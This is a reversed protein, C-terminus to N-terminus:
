GRKSEHELQFPATPGAALDMAASYVLSTLTEISFVHWSVMDNSTRGGSTFQSTMREKSM